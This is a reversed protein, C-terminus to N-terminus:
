LHSVLEQCIDEWTSVPPMKELVGRFSALGPDIERQLKGLQATGLASQGLTPGVDKSTVKKPEPDAYRKQLGPAPATQDSCYCFSRVCDAVAELWKAHLHEFAHPRDSLAEVIGVVVGGVLIPAVLISRIGLARCVAADVRKDIRADYCYLLRASRVCAGTIGANVSLAIGIDPAIDGARARCVLRGRQALAVAAASAGTKQLAARVAVGLAVDTNSSSAVGELKFVDATQCRKSPRNSSLFHLWRMIATRTLLRRTTRCM